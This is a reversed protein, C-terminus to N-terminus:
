KTYSVAWVGSTQNPTMLNIKGSKPVPMTPHEQKLTSCGM